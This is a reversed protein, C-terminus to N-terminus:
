YWNFGLGVTASTIHDNIGKYSGDIIRGQLDVAFEPTSYLEYGAAGMIAGGNDIPQSQTQYPDTFDYSLHAVGIGGKIWLKPTLWFQGAVMATGQSLTVTGGQGNDEITQVNGQLELMLGFRPSLMGGVHGDVEVAIPNYNCSSCGIDGQANSSMGGLGISFGLALRGMRNYFGGPMVGPPNAYYGGGGPPPGYYGQASALSPAALLAAGLVLASAIPAFRTM